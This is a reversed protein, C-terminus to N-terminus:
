ADEFDPAPYTIIVRVAPADVSSEDRVLTEYLLVHDLDAHSDLQRHYKSFFQNLATLTVTLDLVDRHQLQQLTQDPNVIYFSPVNDGSAGPMHHAKLWDLYTPACEDRPEYLVVVAHEGDDAPMTDDAATAPAVADVTRLTARQQDPQEQATMGALVTHLLDPPVEDVPAGAQRLMEIADEMDLDLSSAVDPGAAARLLTDLSAYMAIGYAEGMGGLVSAFRTVAGSADGDGSGISVVFPPTEALYAWPARRWVGAAARYLSTLVNPDVDWTFPEDDALLLDAMQARLSAVAQDFYALDAAYEVHVGLPALLARAADALAEDNVRVTAPLGPASSQTARQAEAEVSMHAAGSFAIINAPVDEDGDVGLSSAFVDGDAAMLPAQIATVLAALAEQIGSDSSQELAVLKNSYIFGSSADLWLILELSGGDIADPLTAMAPVRGGELVLDARRPLGILTQRVFAYEQEADQRKSRKTM